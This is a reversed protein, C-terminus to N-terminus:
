VYMTDYHHVFQSIHLVFPKPDQVKTTERGIVKGAKMIQRSTVVDQIRNWHPSREVKQLNYCGHRVVKDTTDYYDQAREGKHGFPYTKCHLYCVTIFCLDKHLLNHM